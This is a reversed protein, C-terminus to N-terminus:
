IYKSSPHKLSFSCCIKHVISLFIHNRNRNLFALLSLNKQLFGEGSSFSEQVVLFDIHLCSITGREIARAEIAESLNCMSVLGGELETSTVIDYDQALIVKKEKM